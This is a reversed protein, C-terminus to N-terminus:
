SEFCSRAHLFLFTKNRGASPLGEREDGGRGKGVELAKTATLLPVISLSSFRAVNSGETQSIFTRKGGGEMFGYCCPHIATVSSM